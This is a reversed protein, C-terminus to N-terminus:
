TKSSFNLDRSDVWPEQLFAVIIGYMIYKAVSKKDLCM